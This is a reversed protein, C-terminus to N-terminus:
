RKQSLAATAQLRLVEAFEARRPAEQAACPNSDAAEADFSRTLRPHLPTM